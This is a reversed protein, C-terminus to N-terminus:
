DHVYLDKSHGEGTYSGYMTNYTNSGSMMSNGFDTTTMIIRNRESLHSTCSAYSGDM